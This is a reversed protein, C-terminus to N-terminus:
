KYMYNYKTKMKRYNFINLFGKVKILALFEEIILRNNRNRCLGKKLIINELAKNKDTCACLSINLKAEKTRRGETKKEQEM